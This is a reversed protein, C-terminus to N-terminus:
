RHHDPLHAEPSIHSYASQLSLSPRHTSTDSPVSLFFLNKVCRVGSVINIGGTRRKAEPLVLSSSLVAGFAARGALCWCCRGKTSRARM